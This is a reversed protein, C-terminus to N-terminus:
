PESHIRQSLPSEFKLHEDDIYKFPGNKHLSLSLITATAKLLNNSYLEQKRQNGSRARNGIFKLAINSKMVNNGVISGGEYM